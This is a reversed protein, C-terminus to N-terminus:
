CGIVSKTFTGEKIGHYSSLLDITLLSATKLKQMQNNNIKSIDFGMSQVTEFKKIRLFSGHMNKKM